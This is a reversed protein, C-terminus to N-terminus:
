GTLRCIYNVREDLMVGLGGKDSPLFGMCKEWVEDDEMCFYVLVEPAIKKIRAVLAQYVRIRMPKFYRMKGDLGTIFEGYLIRSTEFRREIIKYMDPIYRFSGISIYAVQGAPVARFLEDIVATYEQECGEYIVVPDFHFALPYGKEACAAAAQFRAKLPATKREETRIVAPTNLSWSLITKRHHTLDLLRHIQVTKTKLEIITREQAAFMPVLLDASLGTWPEWILSDTFEGTGLRKITGENFLTHLEATLADHNVFFQLVPPHFYAQLICYSCDMTCFTGIHLIQYDCCTYHQTGPCKRIFAGKNETLLLVQKGAAIPDPEADVAQYVSDPSDVTEVPVNLHSVIRDVIKHGTVGRDIFIKRIM